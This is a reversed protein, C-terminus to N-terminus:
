EAAGRALAETQVISPRGLSVYTVGCLDASQMDYLNRLDIVLNRKMTPGIKSWCLNRFEKWETLIVLADAGKAADEVSDVIGCNPMLERADRAAHPDYGVVTAGQDILSPVITLAPSDRMDDTNAKFALGLIGIRKGNLTGGLTDRIKSVMYAKHRRNAQIVAEVIEIPSQHDTATKVLALTDKPFCSGGYGPGPKLFAEGIRNDLGVGLSLEEVDAGVHECLRALENIFSIKTALFANAAYKILEATAVTSTVVLPRGIRSLPRYLQELYMRAQESESGVVIRDPKMFDEIANGERLFEPNSAVAFRDYPMHRAVAAEVKISTGVPVTSKTVFVFFRDDPVDAAAIARSTEEAATLVYSLDAGGNGAQTPTGVAIFFLNCGAEIAEEVQTSFHLRGAQRNRAVLEDLGPEYIPVAGSEIQAIKDPDVDICYVTHGIDSFCTGSVLGVYGTGIVCVKLDSM